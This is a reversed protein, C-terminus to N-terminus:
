RTPVDVRETSSRGTLPEIRLLHVAVLRGERLDLQAFSADQQGIAAIGGAGVTGADVIVHPGDAHVHPRHSHGVLLLLPQSDGGEALHKVLHHALGHQHVLVVDPRDPLAEFWSVFSDKQAAYELGYSRLRHARDGPARELPDPYGAVLLDGWSTTPTRADLVTAGEEALATMYESTDHNGSVALVQGGLDAVLPAHRETVKAGVQIFDGVAFVTDDGAFDDLADLVLVNDHLDSVVLARQDPTPRDETAFDALQGLSRLATDFHREYEDGVDRLQSAFRLVSPLEDAHGGAAMVQVDGGDLRNLERISPVIVAGVLVAGVAPAIVLWRRRLHIAGLLAGAVFAGALGGGVAAIAGHEVARRVVRTSDERVAQLSESAAASSSISREASTRDIGRLVLELRVPARHELLRVRWDVLPVYVLVHGDVDARMRTELTGFSTRQQSGGAVLLGLAMGGLTCVAVIAVVVTVFASRRLPRPGPM